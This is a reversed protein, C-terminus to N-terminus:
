ATRREYEQRALIMRAYHMLQGKVEAIAVKQSKGYQEMALEKGRTMTAREERGRTKGKCWHNRM